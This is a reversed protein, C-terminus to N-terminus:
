RFTKSFFAEYNIPEAM